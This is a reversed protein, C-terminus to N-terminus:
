DPSRRPSPSRARGRAPTRRRHRRATARARATSSTGTRRAAAPDVTGNLTASGDALTARARGHRGAARGVDHAIGDAGHGTGASSTAVVRYHYTTGPKSGTLRRRSRSAARAPARREDVRDELRLEHEHRVRRVVDDGDREPQRQRLRHRDDARRLQGPRDVCLARNCRSAGAAGVLAVAVAASATLLRTMTSPTHGPEDGTCLSRRVNQRGKVVRNRRRACHAGTFTPTWLVTRQISQLRQGVRRERVELEVLQERAQEHARPVSSSASM